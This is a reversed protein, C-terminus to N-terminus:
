PNRPDESGPEPGSETGSEGPQSASERGFVAGLVSGVLDRGGAALDDLRTRDAVIGELADLAVRAAGIFTLVARQLQEVPDPGSPGPRSANSDGPGTM